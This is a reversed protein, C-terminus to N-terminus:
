HNINLNGDQLIPHDPTNRPIKTPDIEQIIYSDESQTDAYLNFTRPTDYDELHLLLRGNLLLMYVTGAKNTLKGHVVIKAPDTFIDVSLVEFRYVQNPLLEFEILDGKVPERGPKTWDLAGDSLKVEYMSCTGDTQPTNIKRSRVTVTRGMNVTPTAGPADSGGTTTLDTAAPASDESGPDSPKGKKDSSPYDASASDSHEGNGGAFESLDIGTRSLLLLSTVGICLIGTAAVGAIIVKKNKM